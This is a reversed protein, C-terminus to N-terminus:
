MVELLTCCETATNRYMFHITSNAHGVIVYKKRIVEDEMLDWPRLFGTSNTLIVLKDTIM